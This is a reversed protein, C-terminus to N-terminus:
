YSAGTLKDAQNFLKTRDLVTYVIVSTVCGFVGQVANGLVDALAGAAGYLFVEFVFYGGIMVIEAAAAAVVALTIQLAFSKKRAAKTIFFVVIAMIAKIVFTAPAYIGYGLFLDSLGAGIGAALAGYVPGLMYGAIIVFCDGLNAFGGTPLPIVLVATSVCVLAAMLGTFVLKILNKNKM